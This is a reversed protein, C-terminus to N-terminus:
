EPSLQLNHHEKLLDTACDFLRPQDPQQQRLQCNSRTSYSNYGIAVNAFLEEEKPVNGPRARM